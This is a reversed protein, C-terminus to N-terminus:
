VAAGGFKAVDEVAVPTTGFWIHSLDTATISGTGVRINKINTWGEEAGAIDGIIAEGIDNVDADDTYCVVVKDESILYVSTYDTKADHFLEKGGAGLTITTTDWSCYYSTGKDLGDTEDQYTIVFHTADIKAVSLGRVTSANFEREAGKSLTNHAEGRTIIAAIGKSNTHDRWVVVMKNTAIQACANYIITGDDVTLIAGDDPTTGTVEFSIAKGKDTDGDDQYFVAFVDTDLKCCSIYKLYGEFENKNATDVTIIDSGDITAVVATGKNGATENNYVIAFKTTSLGCIAVYEAHDTGSFGVPDEWHITNDAPDDDVNGLRVKGVDGDADDAYVVVFKDTDLKCVGLQVGVAVASCFENIAGWAITTGTVEGVRAKGANADDTDRYVVVFKDTDIECCYVTLTGGSEFESKNGTEWTMDIDTWVPFVADKLWETPIQKIFYLKGLERKFFSKVGIKNETTEGTEEDEIILASDWAQSVEIYSNEGLKIRPKKNEGEPIYLDSEIEFKFEAFESETDVAELSDIKILKRWHALSTHVELSIGTGLGDKYVVSKKDENLLGKTPLGGVPKFSVYKGECLYQLPKDDTLKEKLVTNFPMTDMLFDKGSLKIDPKQTIQRQNWVVKSLNSELSPM